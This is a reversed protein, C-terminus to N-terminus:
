VISEPDEPATEGPKLGQRLMDSWMSHIKDQDTLAPLQHNSIRRSVTSRRVLDSEIEVGEVRRPGAVQPSPPTAKVPSPHQVVEAELTITQDSEMPEPSPPGGVNAPEPAVAQPLSGFRVTEDEDVQKEPSFSRQSNVSRKLSSSSSRLM